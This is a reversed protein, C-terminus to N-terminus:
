KVRWVVRIVFRFAKLIGRLILVMRRQNQLLGRIIARQAPSSFASDVAALGTDIEPVTAVTWDVQNTIDAELDSFDVQEGGEAEFEALLDDIEQQSPEGFQSLYSTAAQLKAEALTEAGKVTVEKYTFDAM